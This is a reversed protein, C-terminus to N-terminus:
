SQLCLPPECLGSSPPHIILVCVYMSLYKSEVTVTQGELTVGSPIVKMLPAAPFMFLYVNFGLVALTVAPINGLGQQFLQVALLLLGFQLGRQM